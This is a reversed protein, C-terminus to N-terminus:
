TGTPDLPEGAHDGDAEAAHLKEVCPTEDGFEEKAGTIAEQLFLIAILIGFVDCPFDTIFKVTHCLGAFAVARRQRDSCTYVRSSRGQQAAARTLNSRSARKPADCSANTTFMPDPM